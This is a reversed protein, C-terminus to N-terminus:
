WKEDDGEEPTRYLEPELMDMLWRMAEMWGEHYDRRSGEEDDKMSEHRQMEEDALEYLQEIGLKM